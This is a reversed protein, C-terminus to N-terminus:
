PSSNSVPTDITYEVGAKLVRRVNGTHRIDDLPDGEIAVMDAFKGVGLSGVQDALGLLEAGGLTAARIAELKSYGANVLHCMEVDLRGHRLDTGVAVRVGCERALRLTRPYHEMVLAFKRAFEEPVGPAVAGLEMIGVTAVLWTGQDAMRRLQEATLFTGHEVVDLGADLAWDAGIGGYVHASVPRGLRHAEDIGAQIEERTVDCRQPDSGRDAVGGTIFIKIWDVQAKVQSRVAARWAEPGDAELGNYWFHGGTRMIGSGATVIRPGIIRGDEVARRIIRDVGGRACMERMTTIGGQLMVRCNRVATLILEHEPLHGQAEVDGLMIHLHDHADIYGPLVTHRSWDLWEGAAENFDAAPGIATIRGGDVRVVQSGPESREGTGDILRGCRILRVPTSDSEMAEVVGIGM